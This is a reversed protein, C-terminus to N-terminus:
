SSFGQKKALTWAENILAIQSEDQPDFEQNFRGLADIMAQNADFFDHSHCINPDTEWANREDITKRTFEDSWERIIITFENALDQAAPPDPLLSELMRTEVVQVPQIPMGIDAKIKVRGGDEDEIAVFTIREDGPDQFKPLIRVPTGAKIKV